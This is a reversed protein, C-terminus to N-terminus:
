GQLFLAVRQFIQARHRVQARARVGELGHEADAAESGIGNVLEELLAAEDIDVRREDGAGVTLACAFHELDRCQVEVVYRKRLVALDVIRLVEEVLRRVQGDGALEVALGIGHGEAVDVRETRREAGLIGVRGAM